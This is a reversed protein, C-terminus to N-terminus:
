KLLLQNLLRQIEKSDDSLEDLKKNTYETEKQRIQKELKVESEVLRLDNEISNAIKLGSGTATLVFIILASPVVPHSLKHWNM